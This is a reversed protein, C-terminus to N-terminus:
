PRARRKRRECRVAVHRQAPTARRRRVARENRGVPATEAPEPQDM